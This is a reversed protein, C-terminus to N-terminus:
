RNVRGQKKVTLYNKGAEIIKSIDTDGIAAVATM